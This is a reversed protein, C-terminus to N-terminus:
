FMLVLFVKLHSSLSVGHGAHACRSTFTSVKLFQFKRPQLPLIGRKKFYCGKDHMRHGHAHTDIIKLHLEWQRRCSATLLLSGVNMTEVNERSVPKTITQSVSDCTLKDRKIAMFVVTFGRFYCCSTWDSVLCIVNVRDEQLPVPLIWPTYRIGTCEQNWKFCGLCSTSCPPLRSMM